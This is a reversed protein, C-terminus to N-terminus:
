PNLIGGTKTKRFNLNEWTKIDSENISYIEGNLNEIKNIPELEESNLFDPPIHRVSSSVFTRISGPGPERILHKDLLGLSLGM